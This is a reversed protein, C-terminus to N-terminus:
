WSPISSSTLSCPFKRSDRLLLGLLGSRDLVHRRPPIASASSKFDEPPSGGHPNSDWRRCEDVPDTLGRSPADLGSSELPKRDMLMAPQSEAKLDDNAVSVSQIRETGDGGTSWYHAFVKSIPTATPNTGTMRAAEHTPAPLNLDPLSEVAGKVDHLSAKAYIGITLSPTSHRALTQASKVSSGSSVLHSIYSGRLAHFDIVGSATESPIGAAVLDVRIMEAIRDTLHSVPRDLELSAV